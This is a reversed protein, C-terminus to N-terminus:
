WNDTRFPSAPLGETNFLNGTAWDSFAYRVAVPNKVQSSQVVVGKGTIRATAPYFVKDVGAIEFATLPKGFSSLGNEANAFSITVLDKDVQMSQYVPSAYPLGKMGYTNAMAWYALRKSITTKDAPHIFQEAGVDMTVVMGSNSIQSSAKLQAERLLNASGITDKYAFPAIQVYYFPFEGRDWLDRWERVMSVMLQDYIEPNSRNQEGQYWIVGKIGYGLFPHVMANFLVAPDNKIIKVTDNVAPIRIGPFSKLSNESMWAEIKTGGWTSMIMGVPVNLKRQLMQAYQYGVASFEKASRVNSVEWSTSKCDFEPTRSLAREYRILRINSNDANFLIENSNLIPQNGFGKIPMEMNSQGSCVWVEGILVDRLTLVDGDNFTVTYPGGAAPTSIKVKWNGQQDANVSYKKNNWSTIISITRRSTSKGWIDVQDKQQLVMHDSFISPLVVKASVHVSVLLLMLSFSVFVKANM